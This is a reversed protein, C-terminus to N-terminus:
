TALRKRGDPKCALLHERRTVGQQSGMRTHAVSHPQPARRKGFHIAYLDETDRIIDQLLKTSSFGSPEVKSIKLLQDM